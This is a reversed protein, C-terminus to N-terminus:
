SSFVYQQCSAKGVVYVTSECINQIEYMNYVINKCDLWSSFLFTIFFIKLFLLVHITSVTNIPFFDMHLHAWATGAEATGRDVTVWVWM